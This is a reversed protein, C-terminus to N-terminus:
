TLVNKIKSTRKQVSVNHTTLRYILSHGNFLNTHGCSLHTYEDTKLIEVTRNCTKCIAHAKKETM